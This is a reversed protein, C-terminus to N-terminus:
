NAKFCCKFNQWFATFSRKLKMLVINLIESRSEGGGVSPYKKELQTDISLCNKNGQLWIVPYDLDNYEM